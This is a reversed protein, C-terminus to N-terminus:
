FVGFTLPYVNIHFFRGSLKASMRSHLLTSPSGTLIIKIMQTDHIMKVARAWYGYNQIKDIFLFLKKPHKEAVYEEVLNRLM